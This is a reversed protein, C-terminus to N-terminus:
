QLVIYLFLCRFIPEHQASQIIVLLAINGYPQLATLGVDIDRQLTTLGVHSTSSSSRASFVTVHALKRPLLVSFVTVHVLKLSDWLFFM